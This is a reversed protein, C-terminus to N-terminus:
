SKYLVPAKYYIKFWLM